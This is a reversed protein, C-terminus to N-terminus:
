FESTLGLTMTRGRGAFFRLNDAPGQTDSNYSIYQRDFLNQVSLALRHRGLRYGAAADVLTYGEFDNAAPQGEFERELYFRTAIRADFPGREYAAFLNVRDPSINAGDLDTDADGDSDTDTAGRTRSYAAGLSLGEVPSRAEVSADFGEIDIPQRVVDVIGDPNRVLLSGLKSSSWWYAASANLWGRKWEVGIERNNSVVPELALFDDIRVGNTNIARLIRGVDAITYGEAYSAYGRLGKVPEVIVGGNLLAKDFSPKGGEVQRSGYFALTNFDPVDLTV